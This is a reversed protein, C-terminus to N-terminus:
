PTFDKGILMKLRLAVRGAQMLDMEQAEGIEAFPWNTENIRKPTDIIIGTWGAYREPPNLWRFQRADECLCLVPIDKGFLANLQGARIWNSSAIFTRPGLLGRTELEPKLQEWSVLADAPDGLAHFVADFTGWRAQPAGIGLLAVLLVGTGIAVIRAARGLRKGADALLEGALPIAFLWGPMQWHALGRSFLTLATFIAIPLLPLCALLWRRQNQPGGAIARVLAWALPVFIWPLLYGGQIALSELPGLWRLGSGIGSRGSQFGFSVWDNQANWVLVPLFCLGAIAAAVWPGPRLLQRRGEPTTLLFLLVGLILLVGHYKSLLALGALLGALAWPGLTREGPRFAIRAVVLAAGLAAAILPGDPLIMTLHVVGFVPALTFLILAWFGAREGFLTAGLRYMLWSSVAGLAIFPLRLVLLNESGTLRAWAGVLWLHLPPHDFYSLSFQRAVGISYAEDVGAPLVAALAVRLVTAVVIIALAARGLDKIQPASESIFPATAHM